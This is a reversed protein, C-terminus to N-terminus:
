RHCLTRGFVPCRVKIPQTHPDPWLGPVSSKDTPHTVNVYRVELVELNEAPITAGGPGTLAETRITFNRLSVTPRVVLQAAEAENRAARIVITRGKTEPLPKDPSIKWGSSAWWLGVRETSGALLEGYPTNFYDSRQALVSQSSLLVVLCLITRLM